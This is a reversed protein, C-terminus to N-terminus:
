HQRIFENLQNKDSDFKFVDNLKYYNNIDVCSKYANKAFDLKNNEFAFLLCIQRIQEVTLMNKDVIQNAINLRTNDYSENRLIEIASEFESHEIAVTIPPLFQPNNEPYSIIIEPYIPSNYTSFGYFGNKQTISFYTNTKAFSIYQGVSNHKMNDIEVRVYHDGKPLGHISVSNVPQDNQLVDDIFLWFSYQVLSCITFDCGSYHMNHQQQAKPVECIALITSLLLFLKKKMFNM